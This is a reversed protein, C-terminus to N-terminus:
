PVDAIIRHALLHLTNRAMAAAGTHMDDEASDRVSAHCIPSLLFM